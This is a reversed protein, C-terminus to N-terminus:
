LNFNINGKPNDPFLGVSLSSFMVSIEVRPKMISCQNNESKIQYAVILLYIEEINKNIHIKPPPPTGALSNISGFM